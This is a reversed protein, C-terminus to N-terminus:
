VGLKGLFDDFDDPAIYAQVTKKLSSRKEHNKKAFFSRLRYIKEHIFMQLMLFGCFITFIPQLQDFHDFIQTDM